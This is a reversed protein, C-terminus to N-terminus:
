VALGCLTVLAMVAGVLLPPRAALREVVRRAGDVADLGSLTAALAVLAVLGFVTFWGLHAMEQPLLSTMGFGQPVWYRAYYADGVAHYSSIALAAVALGAAAPLLRRSAGPPNPSRSAVGNLADRLRGTAGPRTLCM